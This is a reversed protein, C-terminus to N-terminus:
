VKVSSHTLIIQIIPSQEIVVVTTIFSNNLKFSAPVQIESNKVEYSYDAGIAVSIDFCQHVLHYLKFGLNDYM